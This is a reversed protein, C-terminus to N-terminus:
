ERSGSDVVVVDLGELQSLFKRKYMNKYFAYQKAHLYQQNLYITSNYLDEETGQKKDPHHKELGAM